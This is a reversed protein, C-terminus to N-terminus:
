CDDVKVDINGGRIKLKLKYITGEGLISDIELCSEGGFFAKIRESVNYVGLGSDKTQLLARDLQNSLVGKIIGLREVPIGAGNDSITIHLYPDEQYIHVKISGQDRKKALGHGISNEVLPQLIFRPCRIEEINCDVQIDYQLRDMMRIKHIKLFYLINEVEESLWTENGGPSLSYRLLKGFTYTAEVVEQDDNIEAMMRISELTNYLFHPKIQAQMVLYDAEKKMLEVLNIKNILDHIRQIMSNYSTTLYGIEDEYGGVDMPTLNNQDVKRMHSALKLVRSTLMSATVYYIVSLVFLLILLFISSLLSKNLMDPIVENRPSLFYFDLGLKPLNVTNVLIKEDKWYLYSRNNKKIVKSIELVKDSDLTDGKSQYFINNEKVIIVEAKNESDMTKIFNELIQDSVIVELVALQQSYKENYIKTYYSIYPINSIEQKLPIWSGKNMPMNDIVKYIQKSPFIDINEIEGSVPMINKDKAYLRVTKVSENASYAFSFVPRIDKLFHYVQDGESQYLGTLYDIVLPNNQFLPYTSEVQTLSVTLSNAAQNLLSQQGALINAIVNKHSMYLFTSGFLVVPLFVLLIYGLFMKKVITMKKHITM